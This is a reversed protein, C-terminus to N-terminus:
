RYLALLQGITRNKSNRLKTLMRLTTLFQAKTLRTIKYCHDNTLSKLKKFPAFISNYEPDKTIALCNLAVKSTSNLLEVIEHIKPSEKTIKILRYHDEKLNRESDLHKRCSRTDKKIFIKFISFANIRSKISIMRLPPDRRKCIFCKLHNCYTTKINNLDM